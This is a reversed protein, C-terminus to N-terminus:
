GRGGEPHQANARIAAQQVVLARRVRQLVYILVVFVALSLARALSDDGRIEALVTSGLLLVTFFGLLGLVIDVTERRREVV